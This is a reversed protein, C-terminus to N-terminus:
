NKRRFRPLLFPTEKKYDLYQQGFREALEQTEHFYIFTLLGSHVILSLIIVVGSGMWFGIGTYIFLAGLTMPNRTYAYPGHTILKQTAVKPAPTGDGYTYQISVSWFVLVLGALILVLGGALNIWGLSFSIWGASIRGIGVALVAMLLLGTFFFLIVKRRLKENQNQSQRIEPKNEEPIHM